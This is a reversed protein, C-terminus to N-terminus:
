TNKFSAIRPLTGGVEESTRTKNLLPFPHCIQKNKTQLFLLSVLSCRIDFHTKNNNNRTHANRFAIFPRISHIAHGRNHFKMSYMLSLTLLGCFNSFFRGRVFSMLLYVDFRHHINREFKTAKECYRLKLLIVKFAWLVTSFILSNLFPIQHNVM